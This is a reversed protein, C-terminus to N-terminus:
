VLVASTRITKWADLQIAIEPPIAVEPDVSGAQMNRITGVRKNQKITREQMILSVWRRCVMEIEVPVSAYGWKYFVKVNEYGAVWKARWTSQRSSIFSNDGYRGYRHYKLRNENVGQGIRVLPITDVRTSLNPEEVTYLESDMDTFTDGKGGRTQVKTFTIVPGNIYLIRSDKSGVCWLEGTLSLDHEDWDRDCYAVMRASVDTILEELIIDFQESNYQPDTNKVRMYRKLKALTTLDAM